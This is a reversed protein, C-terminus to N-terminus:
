WRAQRKPDREDWFRRIEPDEINGSKFFADVEEKSKNENRMKIAAQVHQEVKFDYLTAYPNEPNYDSLLNALLMMVGSVDFASMKTHFIESAAGWCIHGGSVHPHNNGGAVTNNELNNVTVRGNRIDYHVEYKGFNVRFDVGSRHNRERLVLDNVSRFILLGNEFRHFRWFGGETITRLHSAFDVENKTLARIASSHEALQAVKQVHQVALSQAERIFRTKQNEMERLRVILTNRIMTNAEVQVRAIAPDIQPNAEQVRSTDAAQAKEMFRKNIERRDIFLNNGRGTGFTAMIDWDAIDTETTAALQKIYQVAEIQKFKNEDGMRAFVTYAGDAIIQKLNM